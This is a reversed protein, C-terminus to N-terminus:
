PKKNKVPAFIAKAVPWGRGLRESITNPNINVFRAWQVLKLSWGHITINHGISRLVAFQPNWGLQLRCVILAPPINIIKAWQTINKTKGNITILHNHRSNNAQVKKNAWRVNGPQYNGNNDIRDISHKPSPRDGIYRYFALFSERWEKCVKIGRDGYNKFDQDTPNHCRSIMHTWSKYESTRSMGHTTMRKITVEKRLCGCSQVKKSRLSNTTAIIINGCICRCEWSTYKSNKIRKLIILRGFEQGVLDILKFM